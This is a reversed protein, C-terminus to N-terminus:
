PLVLKHAVALDMEIEVGGLPNRADARAEVRLIEGAGEGLGVDVRDGDERLAM